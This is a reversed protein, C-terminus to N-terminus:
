FNNKLVISSTTITHRIEKESSSGTIVTTPKQYIHYVSEKEDGVMNFYNTLVPEESFEFENIEDIFQSEDFSQSSLTGSVIKHLDSNSQSINYITYPILVDGTGSGGPDNDSISLVNSSSPVLSPDITGSAIYETTVFVETQSKVMYKGSSARTNTKVAM